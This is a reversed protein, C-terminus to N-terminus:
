TSSEYRASFSRIGLSKLLKRTTTRKVLTPFVWNCCHNHSDLHNTLFIIRLFQLKDFFYYNNKQRIVIKFFTKLGHNHVLINTYSRSKNNCQYSYLLTLYLTLIFLVILGRSYWKNANPTFEVSHLVMKTLFQHNSCMSTVFFLM